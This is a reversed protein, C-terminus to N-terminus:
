IFARVAGAKEMRSGSVFVFPPWKWDLKPPLSTMNGAGDGASADDNDRGCRLGGDDRRRRAIVTAGM